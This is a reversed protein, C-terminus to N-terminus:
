SHLEYYQHFWNAMKVCTNVLMEKAVFIGVNKFMETSRLTTPILTINRTEFNEIMGASIRLKFCFLVKM